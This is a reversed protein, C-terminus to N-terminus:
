LNCRLNPEQIKAIMETAYSGSMAEQGQKYQKAWQYIAKKWPPKECNLDDM